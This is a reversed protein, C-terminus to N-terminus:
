AAWARSIPESGVRSGGKKKWFGLSATCNTATPCNIRDFWTTTSGAPNPTAQVAWKAGNWRAALTKTTPHDSSGVAICANAATCAVDQFGVATHGAPNVGPVVTWTTGNWREIVSRATSGFGVDTTGVSQCSNSATCAVGLLAPYAGSPGSIPTSIWTAGSLRAAYYGGITEGVAMCFGAASCTVSDIWTPIRGPPVPSPTYSWATGNWHAFFSRKTVDNRGGAWCDKANICSIRGLLAGTSTPLSMTAWSTGNWREALPIFKNAADQYWGTAICNTLSTCALGGLFASHAGAPNRTPVVSWTTGDFREALTLEAGGIRTGTAICKAGFCQVDMLHGPTKTAARTAGNAAVPGVLAAAAALAVIGIRARARREAFVM